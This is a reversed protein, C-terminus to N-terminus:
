VVVVKSEKFCKAHSTTTPNRSLYRRGNFVISMTDFKVFSELDASAAPHNMLYTPYVHFRLGHCLLGFAPYDYMLIVNIGYEKQFYAIM